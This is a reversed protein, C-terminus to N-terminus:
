STTSLPMMERIEDPWDRQDIKSWFLIELPTLKTPNAERMDRETVWHRKNDEFLVLYSKKKPNHKVISLLGYKNNRETTEAMPYNEPHKEPVIKYRPYSSISGNGAMVQYMNGDVGIVKYLEPAFHERVKQFPDIYEKYVRVKEDKDLLGVSKKANTEDIKTSVWKKNDKKTWKNPAVGTSSHVSNNYARVCKEMSEASFIRSRYKHFHMDRITRIFRNIIGLMNHNNETTTKLDIKHQRLWKVVATSLYAADQDSTMTEPPAPTEEIWQNLAKLVDNLGKNAMPYAYGKRSNVNIVILFYRPTYGDPQVMTDMQYSNPSMSFIPLMLAKNRRISYDHYTQPGRIKRASIFFGEESM